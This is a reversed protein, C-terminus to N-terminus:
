LTGRHASGDRTKGARGQATHVMLRRGAAEARASPRTSTLGPCGCRAGVTGPASPPLDAPAASLAPQGAVLTRMSAIRISQLMSAQCKCHEVSMWGAQRGSRGVAQRCVHRKYAHAVAGGEGEEVVRHQQQVATPPANLAARWPAPLHPRRCLHRNLSCHVVYASTQASPSNCQVLPLSRRAERSHLAISVASSLHLPKMRIYCIEHQCEFEIM